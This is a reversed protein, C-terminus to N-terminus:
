MQCGGMVAELTPLCKIFYCFLYEIIVRFMNPTDLHIPLTHIYPAYPCGNLRVAGWSQELTPFCKIINCVLYGILVQQVYQPHGFTHPTWIYLPHIFM